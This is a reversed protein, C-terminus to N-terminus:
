APTTTVDFIAQRRRNYDHISYLLTGFHLLSLDNCYVDHDNHHYQNPQDHDVKWLELVHHPTHVPSLFAHLM